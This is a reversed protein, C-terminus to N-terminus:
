ASLEMRDGGLWLAGSALARELADVCAGCFDTGRGRRIEGLAEEVTLAARYLRRTLMADLADAVHIIRAALPIEDAILGDPYGRGDIREHHHRVAPVVGDMFGLRAIIRAGEDPHARMLQWEYGSLPGAKQLVADPVGIKGIDHLLAAQGLEELESPGLGLERGITLSLERVSRSHGATYGDRADVTASLAALAATSREILEANAHELEEVQQQITLSAEELGAASRQALHLLLLPALSLLALLTSQLHLAAFTVAILALVLELALDEPVFLGSQSLDLGRALRLMGALLTRNVLVFAIAAVVGAVAIRPVNAGFGGAAGAAYACATGAIVYNAINFPQIYWAYRLKVWDAIHSLVYMLVLQEPPLLLAGAIVFVLAPHFVRNRTLHVATLQAVSAAVTLFAFTAWTAPPRELEPLAVTLAAIAAAQTALWYVWAGFTLGGPRHAPHAPTARSGSRGALTVASSV